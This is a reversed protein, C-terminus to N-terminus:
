GSLLHLCGADEDTLNAAHPDRCLARVRALLESHQSSAPGDGPATAEPLFTRRKRYTSRERAGHEAGVGSRHVRERLWRQGTSQSIDPTADVAAGTM